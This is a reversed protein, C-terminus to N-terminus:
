QFHKKYRKKTNTYDKWTGKDEGYEKYFEILKIIDRTDYDFMHDRKRTADKIFLQERQIGYNQYYSKIVEEMTTFYYDYIKEEKDKYKAYVVLRDQLKQEIIFNHENVNNTYEKWARPVKQSYCFENVFVNEYFLDSQKEITNNQYLFSGIASIRGDIYTLTEIMIYIHNRYEKLYIVVEKGNTDSINEDIFTFWNPEKLTSSQKIKTGRIEYIDMVIFSSSDKYIVLLEENIDEDLNGIYTSVIGEKNNTSLLGLSPILETTIFNSFIEKNTKTTCSTFSFIYLCVVVIKRYRM